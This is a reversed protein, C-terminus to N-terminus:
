YYIHQKMEGSNFVKKAEETFASHKTMSDRSRGANTIIVLDPREVQTSLEHCVISDGLPSLQHAPRLIRLSIADTRGLIAQTSTSNNSMLMVEPNLDRKEYMGNFLNYGDGDNIMIQPYRSAQELTIPIGNDLPHDKRMMAATNPQCLLTSQFKDPAKRNVLFTVLLDIEGNELPNFLEELWVTKMIVKLNPHQKELHGIVRPILSWSLGEQCGVVLEGTLGQSTNAFVNDISEVERLLNKSLALLRKGDPTLTLGASKRRVFLVIQYHDELQNIAHVISTPSKFLAEATGTFSKKEAAVQFYRLYQIQIM